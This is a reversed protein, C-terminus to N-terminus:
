NSSSPFVLCMKRRLAEFREKALPKTLADATNEEGQIKEVKVDGIAAREKVFSDRKSLHRMRSIGKKNNCIAVVASNDEKIIPQVKFGIDEFM